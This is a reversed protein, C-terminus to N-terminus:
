FVKMSKIAPQLQKEFESRILKNNAVEVIYDASQVSSDDSEIPKHIIIAGRYQKGISKLISKCMHPQKCELSYMVYDKYNEEEQRLRVREQHEVVGRKIKDLFGM